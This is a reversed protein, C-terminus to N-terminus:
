RSIDEIVKTNSTCSTHSKPIRNYYSCLLAYYSVQNPINGATLEAIAVAAFQSSTMDGGYEMGIHSNNLDRGFGLLFINLMFM